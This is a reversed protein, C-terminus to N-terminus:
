DFLYTRIIVGQDLDRNTLLMQGKPIEWDKYLDFRNHITAVFQVEESNEHFPIGTCATEFIGASLVDAVVVDLKIGKEKMKNITDVIAVYVGEFKEGISESLEYESSCVIYETNEFLREVDEHAIENKM